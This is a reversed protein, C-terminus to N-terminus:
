KGAGGRIIEEKRLEEFMSEARKNIFDRAQPSLEPAKQIVKRFQEIDLKVLSYVRGDDEYRDVVKAGSVHGASFTKIVREVVAGDNGQYEKMLYGTYTNFYRHLDSLARNDAAEIRLNMNKIGADAWGVGYFVKVSAPFVGSGKKTWKPGGTACGGFILALILVTIRKM